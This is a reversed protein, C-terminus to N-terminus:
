SKGWCFGSKASSLFVLLLWAERYFLPRESKEDARPSTPGAPSAPSPPSPGGLLAFSKVGRFRIQSIFWPSEHTPMYIYIHLYAHIYTYMDYTNTYM